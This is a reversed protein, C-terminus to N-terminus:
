PRLRPSWTVRNAIQHEVAADLLARRARHQLEPDDISPPIKERVAFVVFSHDGAYPGSWSGCAASLARMRLDGDLDEAYCWGDLLTAGSLAAISEPAAGDERLSMAGEGARDLDDFRLCIVNVRTWADHNRSLCDALADCTAIKESFSRFVQELQEFWAVGSRSAHGDRAAEVLDEFVAARGALMRALRILEGSCIADTLVAREFLHDDVATTELLPADGSHRQRAIVRRIYDLWDVISLGWRAFWAQTEDASILNHEYRFQDAGAEVEANTVGRGANTLARLRALDERVRCALRPWHGWVTAAAVVDAFSYSRGGLTFATETLLESAATV